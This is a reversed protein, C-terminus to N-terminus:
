LQLASQLAELRSRVLSYWVWKGRRDGVVLGADGLVKLHHSVTPQAKGLPEVLNCVCVEGGEAAALISIVRLRAPDALAAFGAALEAATAEDLLGAFVSPCCTEVATDILVSRKAM